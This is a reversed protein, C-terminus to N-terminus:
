QKLAEALARASQVRLDQAALDAPMARDVIALLRLLLEAAEEDPIDPLDPGLAVKAVDLLGRIVAKQDLEIADRHPDTM